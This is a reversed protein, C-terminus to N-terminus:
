SKKKTKLRNYAEVFVASVLMIRDQDANQPLNAKILDSIKITKINDDDLVSLNSFIRDTVDDANDETLTKKLIAKMLDKLEEESDVNFGGAFAYIITALGGATFSKSVVLDFSTKNLLALVCYVGFAMFFPMLQNLKEPLPCRTKFAYLALFVGCATAVCDVSYKSLLAIIEIQM